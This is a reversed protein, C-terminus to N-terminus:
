ARLTRLRDFAKPSTLAEIANAITEACMQSSSETTNVTADRHAHEFM